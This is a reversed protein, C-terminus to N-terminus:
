ASVGLGRAAGPNLRKLAGLHVGLWRSQHWPLTLEFRLLRGDHAFVPQKALVALLRRADDLQTATEQELLVDIESVAEGM